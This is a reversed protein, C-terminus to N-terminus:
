LFEGFKDITRGDHEFPNPTLRACPSLFGTRTEKRRFDVNEKIWEKVKM